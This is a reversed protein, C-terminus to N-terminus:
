WSEAKRTRRSMGRAELRGRAVDIGYAVAIRLDDPDFPKQFVAYAGLEMASTKIDSGFASIVIVPIQWGARRMARLVDLASYGPMRYDTIIVDPLQRQQESRTLMEVLHAGDPVCTVTCQDIRLQEALAARIDDDDEALVVHACRPTTSTESATHM